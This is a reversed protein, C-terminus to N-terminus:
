GNLPRPDGGNGVILHELVSGPKVGRGTVLDVNGLWMASFLHVTKAKRIEHIPRLSRAQRSIRRAHYKWYADNLVMMVDNYHVPNFMGEPAVFRQFGLEEVLQGILVPGTEAFEVNSGKEACVEAARRMIESGPNRAYMANNCVGKINPEYCGAIILEDEPLDPSQCITDIDFWWGGRQLLLEVRFWDAFGALHGNFSTGKYRFMLDESLVDRANRQHVFEPCNVLRDYSFLNIDHGHYFFSHLCNLAYWPLVRGVWLFNLPTNQM